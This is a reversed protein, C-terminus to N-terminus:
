QNLSRRHNPCYFKENLVWFSWSFKREPYDKRFRNRWTFRNVIYALIFVALAAGLLSSLIPIWLEIHHKQTSTKGNPPPGTTLNGGPAPQIYASERQGYDM